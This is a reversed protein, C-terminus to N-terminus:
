KHAPKAKQAPLQRALLITHLERWRAANATGATGEACRCASALASVIEIAIPMSSPSSAMLYPICSQQGEPYMGVYKGCACKKVVLEMCSLLYNMSSSLGLAKAVDINTQQEQKILLQAQEIAISKWYEPDQEIRARMGPAAKDFAEKELPSMEGACVKRILLLLIEVQRSM